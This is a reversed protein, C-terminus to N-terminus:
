GLLNKKEEIDKFKTEYPRLNDLEKRLNSCRISEEM